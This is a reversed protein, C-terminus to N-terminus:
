YLPQCLLPYRYNTPVHAQEQDEVDNFILLLPIELTGLSGNTMSGLACPGQPVDSLGMRLLAAVSPGAKTSEGM